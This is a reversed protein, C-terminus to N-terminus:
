RRLVDGRRGLRALDGDIAHAIADREVVQVARKVEDRTIRIDIRSRDLPQKVHASRAGDCNGAPVVQKRAPAFELLLQGEAKIVPFELIINNERARLDHGVNRDVRRAQSVAAKAAVRCNLKRKKRAARGVDGPGIVAIVKRKLQCARACALVVRDEAAAEVVHTLELVLPLRPHCQIALIRFVQENGALLVPEAARVRHAAIEQAFDRIVAAVRALRLEVCGIDRSM